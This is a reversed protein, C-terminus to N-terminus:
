KLDIRKIPNGSLRVQAEDTSVPGYSVVGQHMGGSKVIYFGDFVYSGHQFTYGGTSVIEVTTDPTRYLVFQRTKADFQSDSAKLHRRDDITREISLKLGIVKDLHEAIFDEFAQYNTETVQGYLQPIAPRGRQGAAPSCGLLMLLCINVALRM